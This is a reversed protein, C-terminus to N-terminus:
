LGNDADSFTDYADGSESYQEMEFCHDCVWNIDSSYEMAELFAKTEAKTFKDGCIRCNSKM